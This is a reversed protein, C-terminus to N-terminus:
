YFNRKLLYRVDVPVENIRLEWHLHPGTSFGTSGITAMKTGQKLFQGEKVSMSNLHYYITYIGPLHELIITNGTVVRNEALVVKGNAPAVIPTGKKAPYDMGWHRSTHSKGNTYKKIRKEAFYSSIKRLKFPEIFPGPSLKANYNKTKIVESFRNRQKTKKKTKKTLIKTNKKSLKMTYEPFKKNIVLFPKIDEIINEALMIKTKIQWYGSNWWVAIGAIAVWKTKEKNIPFAKISQVANNKENIFAVWANKIEEKADFKITIFNGLEARKPFVVQCNDHQIQYTYKKETTKDIPENADQSGSAFIIFSLCFFLACVCLNKKM